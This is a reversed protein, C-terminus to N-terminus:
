TQIMSWVGEAELSSSMEPQSFPCLVLSGATVWHVKFATMALSETMLSSLFRVQTVSHNPTFGSLKRQIQIAKEQFREPRTCPLDLAKKMVPSVQQDLTLTRTSKPRRVRRPKSNSTSSTLRPLPLKKLHLCQQHDWSFIMEPSNIIRTPFIIKPM